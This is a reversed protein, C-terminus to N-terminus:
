LSPHKGKANVKAPLQNLSRSRVNSINILAKSRSPKDVAAKSGSAFSIRWVAFCPNIAVM